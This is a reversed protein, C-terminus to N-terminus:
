NSSWFYLLAALFDNREDDLSFSEPQKNVLMPADANLPKTHKPVSALNPCMTREMMNVV